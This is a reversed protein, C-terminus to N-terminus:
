GVPINRTIVLGHKSKIALCTKSQSPCTFANRLRMNQTRAVAMSWYLESQAGASKGLGM